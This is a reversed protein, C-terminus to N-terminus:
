LGFRQRTQAFAAQVRTELQEHTARDNDIVVDAVALRQARTAQTQIVAEVQTASWGNRRMVRERQTEPNCDVVWVTHVRDRWHSSEVLLPIDLVVCDTTAVRCQAEVESQVLPHIIAELRRRADPDQFVRIRMRDRDLAGDPGIASPGFAEAIPGVAAGGPLTCARAIADADITPAGLQALLGAVTSKGSGIGGTLGIRVPRPLLKM